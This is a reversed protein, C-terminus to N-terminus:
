FNFSLSLAYNKGDAYPTISLDHSKAWPRTFIYASGAGIAAGSVVDWWHHRRSYVRGWATYTALAYAPGGFKWGYRRQLFAASAFTISSHGSPFSHHDSNDPRWEHVAYKLIYTAGLTAAATFAGEKLGEWDQEVLVGALSAVPLAVLVVDTSTKVNRQSRSLERVADGACIRLPFMSIGVILSLISVFKMM